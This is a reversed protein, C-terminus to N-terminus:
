VDYVHNYNYVISIKCSITECAILLADTSASVLFLKLTPM